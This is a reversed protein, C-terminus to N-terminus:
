PIAFLLSVWFLKQIEAVIGEDKQLFCVIIGDDKQLFCVYIGEDKQLFAYIQLTFFRTYLFM